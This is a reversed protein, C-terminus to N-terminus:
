DGAMRYGADRLCSPDYGRLVDRATRISVACRGPLDRLNVDNAQLCSAEFLRLTGTNAQYTELCRLPLERDRHGHAVAHPPPGPQGPLIIIPGNTVIVTRDDRSPAVPEPAPVVGVPVYTTTNSNGSNGGSFWSEASVPAAVALATACLAALAFTTRTM